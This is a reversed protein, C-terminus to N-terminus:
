PENSLSGQGERWVIYAVALAGSRACTGDVSIGPGGAVAGAVDRTAEGAAARAEADGSRCTLGPVNCVIIGRYRPLRRLAEAVARAVGRGVERYVRVPRARLADPERAHSGSGSGFLAM